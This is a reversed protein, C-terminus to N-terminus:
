EERTLQDQHDQAKTYLEQPINVTIPPRFLERHRKLVNAKIRAGLAEDSEDSDYNDDDPDM